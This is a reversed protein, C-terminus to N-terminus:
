KTRGSMALNWSEIADAESYRLGWMTSIRCKSCEVWYSNSTRGHRVLAEGGCGCKVPKLETDSLTDFPVNM